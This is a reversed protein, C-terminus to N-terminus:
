KLSVGSEEKAWYVDSELDNKLSLDFLNVAQKKVEERIRKKQRDSIDQWQNKKRRRVDRFVKKDAKGLNRSVVSANPVFTFRELCKQVWRLDLKGKAQKKIKPRLRIELRTLSEHPIEIRRREKLQKKKDYVLARTENRKSCVYYNSNTAYTEIKANTPKLM